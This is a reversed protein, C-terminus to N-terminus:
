SAESINWMICSFIYNVQFTKSIRDDTESLVDRFTEAQNKSQSTPSHRDGTSTWFYRLGRQQSVSPADRHNARRDTGKDCPLVSSRRVPEHQGQGRDENNVRDASRESTTADKTRDKTEDAAAVDAYTRPDPRKPGVTLKGKRFYAVKGEKKAEAVVSARRKTLDNVVRM